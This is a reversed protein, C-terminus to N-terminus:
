PPIAFRAKNRSRLVRERMDDYAVYDRDEQVDSSTTSTRTSTTQVHDQALRPSRRPATSTRTSTTQFPEVAFGDTVRYKWVMLVFQNTPVRCEAVDRNACFFTWLDLAENTTVHDVRKEESGARTSYYGVLFSDIFAHVLDVGREFANSEEYDVINNTTEM